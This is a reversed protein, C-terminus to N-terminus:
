GLSVGVLVPEPVLEVGYTDRVGDRVSRALALLDAATAGGRNTLALSHKTSLSAPAGLTYGKDFGARSILWAASTKVVGDVVPAAAGIQRIRTHDTVPYRPAEPPLAADAQSVTMVPNTFFSGASWTDHDAADLVMGKSGRLALVAERVETAPVRAGVDVGLRRALEPYRVPASLTALRMQFTVELVVYRPTPGWTRGGGDDADTLSRKLVSTRYGLGLEGVALMRTRRELRDYVRVSSLTEAVEQGYAGVNQVPTAGTSGPIGSLAEVGMWGEDVATAVVEDWPQGAPVTLSAGACSSDAQGDIGRRADRVVVGDFGADAALLNSGGGLVLVPTGADDAARVADVLEAETSAEVYAAVPGGVRLTTLEALTPTGAAFTAGAPAALSTVASTTM